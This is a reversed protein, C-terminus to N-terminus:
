RKTVSSTGCGKFMDTASASNLIAWGDGVYITKLNSNGSFMSNLNSVKAIDFSTIDLSTLSSCNEFMSNMSTVESTNFSNLNVNTLKTNSYFMQSMNTVSSTDFSSLDLNNINSCGYFMNSMNTVKSTNFNNFNISTLSTNGYFMNSMSTVNSTNFSSLDLNTLSSCGYFMADMNTATMTHLHQLTATKLATFGNFLYSSNANAMVGSYGGIYLDYKSSDSSNPVVWAMVGGDKASSVDWSATATSPVTNNDLFTVSVINTKYQPAHFDSSANQAWSQLLNSIVPEDPYAGVEDMAITAYTGNNFEAFLRGKNLVTNTEVRSIFERMKQNINTDETTSVYNKIISIDSYTYIIKKADMKNILNDCFSDVIGASMNCSGNEFVIVYPKSESLQTTLNYNNDKLYNAVSSLDYISEVNNYNYSNKYNTTLNSFQVYLLILITLVFTSVVLSEALLFGRNNIKM